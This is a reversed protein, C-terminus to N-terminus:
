TRHSSNLRTSKRDVNRDTKPENLEIPTSSSVIDIKRIMRVPFWTEGTTLCIHDDGLWKPNPVINGTYSAVDPIYASGKVAINTKVRLTIM